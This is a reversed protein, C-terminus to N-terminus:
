ILWKRCKYIFTMFNKENQLLQSLYVWNNWEPFSRKKEAIKKVVFGYNILNNRFSIFFDDTSWKIYRKYTIFFNVIYDLYKRDKTQLWFCIFSMIFSFDFMIDWQESLRDIFFLWSNNVIINKLHLDWHIYGYYYKSKLFSSKKPVYGRAFCIKEYGKRIKLNQFHIKGLLNWLYRCLKLNYENDGDLVSEWDAWSIYRYFIFNKWKSMSAKVHRPFMNYLRKYHKAEAYTQFFKYM